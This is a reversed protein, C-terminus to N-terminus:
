FRDYVIEQIELGGMRSKDTWRNEHRRPYILGRSSKQVSDQGRQPDTPRLRRPDEGRM